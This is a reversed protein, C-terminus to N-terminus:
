YKALHHDERSLIKFFYIISERSSMMQFTATNQPKLFEQTLYEMFLVIFTLVGNRRRGFWGGEGGGGRQTMM